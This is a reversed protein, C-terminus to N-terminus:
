LCLTTQPGKVRKLGTLESIRQPELSSEVRVHFNANRIDEELVRLPLQAWNHGYRDVFLAFIEFEGKQTGAEAIYCQWKEDPTSIKAFILPDEEAEQSYLANASAIRDLVNSEILM